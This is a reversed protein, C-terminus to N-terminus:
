GQCADMVKEKKYTIKLMATGKAWGKGISTINETYVDQFKEAENKGVIYLTSDEFGESKALEYLEKITLKGNIIFDDFENRPREM